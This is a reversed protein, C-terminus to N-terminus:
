YPLIPFDHDLNYYVINKRENWHVLTLIFM